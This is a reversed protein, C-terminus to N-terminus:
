MPASPTVLTRDLVIGWFILLPSKQGCDVHHLYMYVNTIRGKPHTNIRTRASAYIVAASAKSSIGISIRSSLAFKSASARLKHACRIRMEVTGLWM